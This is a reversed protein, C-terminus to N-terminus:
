LKDFAEELLPVVWSKLYPSVEKKVTADTDEGSFGFQATKLSIKKLAEAVLTKPSNKKRYDFRSAHKLIEIRIPM